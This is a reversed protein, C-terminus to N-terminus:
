IEETEAQDTLRYGVSWLNIVFRERGVSLKSRLRCAHADLTRTSGASRYGWVTELLEERPFVRSPDGALASLLAFEKATLHIPKGEVTVRRGRNDIALTGITMVATEGDVKSRRLLAAVRGRLEAYSYPKVVYDDCGFEFARVRDIEASRGSIVLVPLGHTENGPLADHSGRLDRLLDYGSEVPLNVDLMLLDFTSSGIRRRAAAITEVGEVEYGDFRLGESLQERVSEDDDVILIRRASRNNPPAGDSRTSTIKQSM